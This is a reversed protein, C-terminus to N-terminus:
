QSSRRIHLSGVPDCTNGGSKLKGYGGCIEPCTNRQAECWDSRLNQPVLTSSVNCCPGASTNQASVFSSFTAAVVLLASYLM